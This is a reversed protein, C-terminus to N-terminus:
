VRGTVTAKIRRVGASVAEEKIIKFIGLDGTRTVHPGGCIEKSFDGVTYVSVKDGYKQEFLGIAGSEKAADVTMEERDIPVDARIVDNVADEVAKLDEPTLKTPHVFDFRLREPTINSGKQAVHEGLVKRLAAHLLHTATHLRTTETGHDALGGKFTGASASRSLDQHKAFETRFAEVDLNGGREGILEQTLELPFGYTQFLDFAEAGSIVRDQMMKELQKLGKELTKRFKTEEDAMADVIRTRNTELEAYEGGYEGIVVAAVSAVFLGEIGLRRGERIARRILRRVIYGQGVNSPVMGRPDGVIFTAARLHDAIIRFSRDAAEDAGYRKGSSEEIVSFIGTFAETDFVTAKGQMVAAMRELGMGTDVNKQSLPIFRGDATKEYEMFVDNWIEVFRGCDCNPHCMPGFATDHPRETDYFMETDPGCPGTQGAPNWWNQGKPYAYIRAGDAGTAPI